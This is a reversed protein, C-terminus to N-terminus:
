SAGGVVFLLIGLYHCASGAIVLLHWAAHFHRVREDNVLFLTGVMYCVAGAIIAEFAGPPAARWMEPVAVIPMWALLVYSSVSVAEVRHAYVLKAAFGILAVAWMLVLLVWWAGGRLYAASFPTYTAVILLYIFAQDLQRFLTRWRSTTVSHSLTSMAYVGVLSVLYSGCSAALWTEGRVWIGAIMVLAGGVALLLGLGHTVANVLEEDSSHQWAPFDAELPACQSVQNEGRLILDM